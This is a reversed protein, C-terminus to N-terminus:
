AWVFVVSPGIICKIEALIVIVFIFFHIVCLVHHTTPLIAMCLAVTMQSLFAVNAVLFVAASANISTFRVPQIALLALSRNSYITLLGCALAISTWKSLMLSPRTDRVRLSAGSPANLLPWKSYADLWRVACSM